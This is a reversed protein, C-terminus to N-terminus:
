YALRTCRPDLNQTRNQWDAYHQLLVISEDDFGDLIKKTEELHVDEKQQFVLLGYQMATHLNAEFCHGINVKIPMDCSFIHKEFGSQGTAKFHNPAVQYITGRQKIDAIDTDQSFLLYPLYSGNFKIWGTHAAEDLWIQQYAAAIHDSATIQKNDESPHLTNCTLYHRLGCFLYDTEQCDEGANDFINGLTLMM